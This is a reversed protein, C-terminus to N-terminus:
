EEGPEIDRTAYYTDKICDYAINAGDEEEEEEGRFGRVFQEPALKMFTQASTPVAQKGGDSYFREKLLELYVDKVNYEFKLSCTNKEKSKQRRLSALRIIRMMM